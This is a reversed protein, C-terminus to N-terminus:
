KPPAGYLSPRHLSYGFADSTFSQVLAGDADVEHITGANSYTVLTNGSELRQVDGLTPSGVGGDYKWVETATGSVEDLRFEYVISRITGNSFFLLNGNELLQHGHNLQWDGEIHRALAGSGGFQWVLEGDRSVKLFSDSNRDSITYSDDRPHYLVSNAHCGANGRVDASTDYLTGFDAVVLEFRGAAKREMLASCGNRHTIFSLSGDPLTTFDHHADELGSVDRTLKLGDMSVHAVEGMGGFVNLGLTWMESADYSMRARSPAVPVDLWYWVVDGEEDFVLVRSGGPDMTPAMLNGLGSTTVVFGPTVSDPQLVEREVIPISNPVPLTDISYGRSVCVEDDVRALVRFDYTRDGKMGLLLTRYQPSSLDVPAEHTRGGEALTFEIVASDLEPWNIGWSVIGVTGIAPSLGYSIEFSCDGVSTSADSVTVLEIPRPQAGAEVLARVPVPSGEDCALLLVCGTLAVTCASLVRCPVTRRLM